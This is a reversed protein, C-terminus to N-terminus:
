VIEQRQEAREGGEGGGSGQAFKNTDALALDSDFIALSALAEMGAWSATSNACIHRIAPAYRSYPTTPCSCHASNAM